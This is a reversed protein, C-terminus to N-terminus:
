QALPTDQPPIEGMIEAEIPTISEDMTMDLDDWENTEVFMETVPPVERQITRLSECTIQLDRAHLQSCINTNEITSLSQVVSMICQDRRTYTEDEVVINKCLEANESAVAQGTIFIAKCESQYKEDSLQSCADANQAGIMHSTIVGFECAIKQEDNELHACFSVDNNQTAVQLAVNQVCSHM